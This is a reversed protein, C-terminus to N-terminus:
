FLLGLRGRSKELLYTRCRGGILIGTKNFQLEIFKGFRSSDDNKDTCANGFADFLVNSQVIRQVIETSHSGDTCSGAFALHELILKTTTSKGSGSHGAIIISQDTGTLHM